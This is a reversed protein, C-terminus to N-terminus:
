RRVVAIISISGVVIIITIIVYFLFLGKDKRGKDQGNIKEVEKNGSTEGVNYINVKISTIPSYREGDYSRAKFEHEGNSFGRTDWQYSWNTTGDAEIWPNSDIQIEVREIVGNSSRAEGRVIITGNVTEGDSPEMIEVTLTPEKVVITKVVNDKSGNNDIVELTVKFSGNVRYFHTTNRETSTYGDGFDWKWSVIEGDPDISQDIFHIAEFTYPYQPQYTFDAVPPKNEAEMKFIPNMLPYYDKNLGGPIDYPTDGIGNNDEDLGIYNWWYNGHSSSNWINECNDIVASEIFDNEYIRNNKSTNEMTRFIRIGYQNNQFINYRITNCSSAGIGIGLSEHNLISCNSIMNRHSQQLSVGYLPNNAIRANSIRNNDSRYLNLGAQNEEVTCKDVINGHGNKIYVGLQNNTITINIIRTLNAEIFIGSSNDFDTQNRGSGEVKLGELTVSDATIVIVSGEEEGNVVVGEGTGRLTIAKNVLITERYVGPYVYIIDGSWADNIAEQISSYNGIGEGGVYLTQPSLAHTEEDVAIFLNVTILFLLIVSTIKNLIM